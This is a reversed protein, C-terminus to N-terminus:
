RSQTQSFSNLPPNEEIGNGLNNRAGLFSRVKMDEAYSRLGSRLYMSHTQVIPQTDTQFRIDVVHVTYILSPM